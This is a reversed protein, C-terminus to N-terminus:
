HKRTKLIYVGMDVVVAAAAVMIVMWLMLNTNDGTVPGNAGNNNSQQGTSGTTGNGDTTGTGGTTGSGGTTGTEGTEGTAPIAETKLIRGCVTCSYTKVGAETAMAAKTEKGDDSIHAAADAKEGCVCEHWHNAEDNKWDSGFVHGEITCVVPASEVEESKLAGDFASVKVTYSGGETVTLTSETENKLLVGEKYWSYAFSVNNLEHSVEATLVNSEGTHVITNNPKVFVDPANLTWVEILTMRGTVVDNEMDWMEQKSWPRWGLLTYGTKTPNPVQTSDITTNPVVWVRAYTVNNAENKFPVGILAVWKLNQGDQIFGYSEDMSVFQGAEPVLGAAYTVVTGGDPYYNGLVEIPNAPHFDDTVQIVTRNEDENDDLAINGLISPAGSLKLVTDGNYVHLAIATGNNDVQLNNEITGGSIEIEAGSWASIGGGAFGEGASNGTISGSKMIFKATNTGSVNGELYVAGGQYVASNNRIDIGDMTVVSNDLACIAGGWEETFNDEIIGGTLNVTGNWVIMAGGALSANNNKIIGGTMNITCTNGQVANAGNNILQTGEGINLTTGQGVFILPADKSDDGLEISDGDFIVNSLTLTTNGALLFMKKTFGEARKITVGSLSVDGMNSMIVTGSVYITGNESVLQMAKELSKVANDKDAGSQSDDGNVGDLYVADLRIVSFSGDDNKQITLGSPVYTSVDSSFTGGTIQPDGTNKGAELAQGDAGGGNFTGGHIYATAKANIGGDGGTNDNGCLVAVQSASTYTGGYIHAEVMGVEGAIYLAYFSYKGVASHECGVTQSEGGRMEAYGGIIALGGHVGTVSGGNFYLEGESRVCYAWHKNGASDTTETCSTSRFTGDNITLKSANYVACTAGEFLGGNITAESGDRVFVVAGDAMVSGRFTGNEVTLAGFNNIAGYGGFESASSDIVGNGTVTLTGNNVIPRGQFNSDVTISKGAMDLLITKGAPVTAIDGTTMGTIDKLLTVTATEPANEFAEKLSAYGTEGIQCVDNESVSFLKVENTVEEAITELETQEEQESETPEGDVTTEEIDVTESAMVTEASDATEMETSEVSELAMSESDSVTEDEAFVAMSLSATMAFTLLVAMWRKFKAKGKM